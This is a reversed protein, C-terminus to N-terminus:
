GTVHRLATDFARVTAAGRLFFYSADDERPLVYAFARLGAVTMQRYVDALPLRVDLDMRPDTGHHVVPGVHAGAQQLAKLVIADTARAISFILLDDPLTALPEWADPNAPETRPAFLFLSLFKGHHATQWQVAAWVANELDDWTASADLAFVPLNIRPKM